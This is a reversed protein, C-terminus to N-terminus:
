LGTKWESSCNSKTNNVLGALAKIKKGYIFKKDEFTCTFKPYENHSIIWHNQNIKKIEFRKM